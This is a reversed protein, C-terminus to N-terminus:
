FWLSNRVSEAKEDWLYSLSFTEEEEEEKERERVKKGTFAFHGLALGSGYDRWYLEPNRVPAGPINASHVSLWFLTRIPILWQWSVGKGGKPREIGPFGVAIHFGSNGAVYSSWPKGGEYGVYGM